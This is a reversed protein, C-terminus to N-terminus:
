EEEESPAKEMTMLQVFLNLKKYVAGIRQGMPVKSVSNLEKWNMIVEFPKKECGDLLM